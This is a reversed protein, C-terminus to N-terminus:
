VVRISFLCYFKQVSVQVMRFIQNHWLCVRVWIEVVVLRDTKLNINSHESYFSREIPVLKSVSNSPQNKYSMQRHANPMLRQTYCDISNHVPKTTRIPHVTCCIPPSSLSSNTSFPHFIVTSIFPRPVLTM